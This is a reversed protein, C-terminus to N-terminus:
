GFSGLSCIHKLRTGLVKEGNWIATPSVGPWPQWLPELFENSNRWMFMVIHRQKTQVITESLQLFCVSGFFGNWWTDLSLISWSEQLIEAAKALPKESWWKSHPSPGPSSTPHTEWYKASWQKHNVPLRQQWAHNGLEHTHVWGIAQRTNLAVSLTVLGEPFPWM